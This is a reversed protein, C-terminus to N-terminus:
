KLKQSKNHRHSIFDICKMAANRYVDSDSKFVLAGILDGSKYKKM